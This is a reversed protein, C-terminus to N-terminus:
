PEPKCAAWLQRVRPIVQNGYLEINTVVVEQSLGPM